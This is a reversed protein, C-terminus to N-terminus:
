RHRQIRWEGALDRSEAGIGLRGNMNDGWCTILGDRSPTKVLACVHHAGVALKKVAAQAGLNIRALQQPTKALASTNGTGTQGYSNSGWCVAQQLENVICTNFAGAYVSIPAAGTGTMTAMASTAAGNSGNTYNITLNASAAGVATPAFRM